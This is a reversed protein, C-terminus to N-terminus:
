PLTIKLKYKLDYSRIEKIKCLNIKFDNLLAPLNYKTLLHHVTNRCQSMPPWTRLTESANSKYDLLEPRPNRCSNLQYFLVM